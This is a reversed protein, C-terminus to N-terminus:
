VQPIEWKALNQKGVGSKFDPIYKQYRRHYNIINLGLAERINGLLSAVLM